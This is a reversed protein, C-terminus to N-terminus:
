AALDDIGWPHDAAIPHCDCETEHGGWPGESATEETRINHRAIALDSRIAHLRSTVDILDTPRGARSRLDREETLAGLLQRFLEDFTEQTTNVDLTM